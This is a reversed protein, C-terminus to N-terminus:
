SGEFRGSRIKENFKRVYWLNMKDAYGDKMRFPNGNHATDALMRKGEIAIYISSLLGHAKQSIKWVSKKKDTRRRFCVIWGEDVFYDFRKKNWSFIACCEHFEEKSFYKLAQLMFLIDLNQSSINHKKQYYRKAIPYWALYFKNRSETKPNGM